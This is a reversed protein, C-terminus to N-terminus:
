NPASIKQYGILQHFYTGPEKYYVSITYDNTTEFHNGEFLSFDAISRNENLSVYQYNYYGQKLLLKGEFGQKKFNYTLKNETNFQWNTLEGMIFVGGDISIFKHSIFFYVWCYDAEINKKNGDNNQILLQGNIDHEFHYVDKARSEERRLLVNHINNTYEIQEIYESRYKLSKIDFNRFENGGDFISKRNFNYDLEEGLNRNPKIDYVLNDLRGNQQVVVFLDREPNQIYLNNRFISFGVEQKQERDSFRETPRIKAAINLQPEIVKFRRIFILDNENEFFVKIVYNGSKTIRLYDNPFELSYHIYPITTNLSFEYENIYDEQYGDIYQNQILDSARWYPDCHQITYRFNKVKADDLDDFCLQLKEGSQLQIIPESMEFGSKQLIVTKINKDFVQSKLESDDANYSQHADLSFPISLVPFLIIYILLFHYKFSAESTRYMNILKYIQRTKYCL